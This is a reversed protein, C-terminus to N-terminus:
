DNGGEAALKAAAALPLTSRNWFGIDGRRQAFFYETEQDPEHPDRYWPMHRALYPADTRLAETVKYPTGPRHVSFTTDVHAAFVGKEVEKEWFPREWTIVAEKHPYRDPIDDIHLGFGTKDFDPHRLLLEQFYEVADDPCSTDPLVDPDTVVFPQEHGLRQALGSLWPAEHGLNEPLTIVNHPTSGLYELLPPYTSANDLLHIEEHGSKELWTVLRRLDSLLNHCIIIVPIDARSVPKFKNGNM